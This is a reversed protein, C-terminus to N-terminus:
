QTLKKKKVQQKLGKEIQLQRRALGDQAMDKMITHYGKDISVQVIGAGMLGAGLVAINQAPREPKGYNNKKCYTQGHFLGILAKSETTVGLKAFGQAEAEFGATEGKELRTKVVDIIQLPAPYLGGTLKMVQTRAQNLVYNRGFDYQLLKDTVKDMLNKKRPQRKVSGSAMGRATEIAIQELYDRTREAPSKEGPGLPEITQDVLGMKKAKDPRINKGTLMMDLANPVSVLRPLRQTGGGGPLLGLMVEPLALATKKDKVAIRYHTALAVELGGGLCSGMIAAVVPKKSDEIAQLVKHGETSVNYVDAETKLSSLMGIDAGAIFCEPKGSIIVVSSVASDSAVTAFVEKFESMVEMSLTNVKSGPSDFKVVGVDGHVEYKLHQGAMAASRSLYRTNLYSNASITGPIGKSFQRFAGLLRSVGAM